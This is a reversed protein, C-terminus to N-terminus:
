HAHLLWVSHCLLKCLIITVLLLLPINYPFVLEYNSM